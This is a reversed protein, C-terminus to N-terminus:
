RLGGLSLIDSVLLNLDQPSYYNKKGSYYSYNISTLINFKPLNRGNSTSVHNAIRIERNLSNLILYISGYTSIHKFTVSISNETLVEIVQESILQENSKYINDKSILM